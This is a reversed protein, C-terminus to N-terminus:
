GWLNSISNGYYNSSGTGYYSSTDVTGSGDKDELTDKYKALDMALTNQEKLKTVENNYNKELKLLEFAEDAEKDDLDWGRKLNTLYINLKNEADTNFGSQLRAARDQLITLKLEYPKSQMEQGQLFLNTKTGIGSEAATIGESIRGLGTTFEGLRELLPKKEATSMRGRQAETILSERTTGAIMPDVRKITDELNGIQGRLTSATTKMGPLGASEELQTYVDLPNKQNRLFMVYEELSKDIPVELGKAFELASPIQSADAMGSSSGGPVKSKWGGAAIDANIAASDNWGQSKYIDQINSPPQMNKFV